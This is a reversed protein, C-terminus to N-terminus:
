ANHKAYYVSLLISYIKNEPRGVVVGKSGIRILAVSQVGCGCILVSISWAERRSPLGCVRRVRVLALLLGRVGERGGTMAQWTVRGRGRGAAGRLRLWVRGCGALGGTSVVVRWASGPLTPSPSAAALGPEAEGARELVSPPPRCRRCENNSHHSVQAEQGERRNGEGM